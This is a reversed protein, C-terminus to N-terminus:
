LFLVVSCGLDESFQNNTSHLLFLECSALLPSAVIKGCIM